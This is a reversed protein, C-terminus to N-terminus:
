NKIGSFVMTKFTVGAGDKSDKYENWIDETLNRKLSSNSEATFFTSFDCLQDAAEYEGGVMAKAPAAAAAPTAAAAAPQAAAAKAPAGPVPKVTDNKSGCAGM